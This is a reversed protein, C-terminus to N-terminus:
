WRVIIQNKVGKPFDDSGSTDDHRELTFKEGLEGALAAQMRDLRRMGRRDFATDLQCSREGADISKQVSSIWTPLIGMDIKLQELQSNRM